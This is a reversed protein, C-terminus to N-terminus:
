FQAYFFEIGDKVLSGRPDLGYEEYYKQRDCPKGESELKYFIASLHVLLQAVQAAYDKPDSFEDDVLADVIFAATLILNNHSNDLIDPIQQANHEILDEDITQWPIQRWTTDVAGGGMPARQVSEFKFTKEAPAVPHVRVDKPVGVYGAARRIAKPSGDHVMAVGLKHARALARLELSEPDTMSFGDDPVAWMDFGFQPALQRPVTLGSKLHASFFPSTLRIATTM